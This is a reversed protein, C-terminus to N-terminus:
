PGGLVQLLSYMVFVEGPDVVAAIGQWGGNSGDLMMAGGQLMLHYGCAMCCHVCSASSPLLCGMQQSLTIM